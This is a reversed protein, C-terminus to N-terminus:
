QLRGSSSHKFFCGSVPITKRNGQDKYFSFPAAFYRQPESQIRRLEGPFRTNKKQSAINVKNCLCSSQLQLCAPSSSIAQPILFTTSERKPEKIM